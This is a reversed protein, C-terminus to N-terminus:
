GALSPVPMAAACSTNAAPIYLSHRIVFPSHRIAFPPPAKRSHAGILVAVTLSRSGASWHRICFWSYPSYAFLSNLRFAAACYSSSVAAPKAKKAALRSTGKAPAAVKEQGSGCVEKTRLQSRGKEPAAFKRQGTGCVERTRRRSRKKDPAAFAASPHLRPHPRRRAFGGVGHNVWDGRAAFRRHFARVGHGRAIVSRFRVAGV